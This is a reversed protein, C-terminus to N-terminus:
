NELCSSGLKRSLSMVGRHSPADSAIKVTKACGACIVTDFVPEHQLPLPTKCVGGVVSPFRSVRFINQARESTELATKTSSRTVCSHDTGHRPAFRQLVM